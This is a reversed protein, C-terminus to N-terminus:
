YRLIAGESVDKPLQDVIAVAGSTELVHGIAADLDDPGHEARCRSRTVLLTDVRGEQAARLIESGGSLARDAGTADGFREADRDSAARLVPDVLERAREQLEAGSSADPNGALVDDILNGYALSEKFPSHYESVSALVLPRRENPGLLDDLGGAVQHLFKGLIVDDVEGGAGHGHYGGQGGPTPQHQLQPERQTKGDADKLSDPISGIDLERVTASTAEFLRVKNQSVALILFGGDGVAAPVIPRVAFRDSVHVAEPLDHAVRYARALGSSAYLALGDAMRQWPEPDEILAMMPALIEATEEDGAGHARLETEADKVLSKLRIPGDLTEAGGRATPMFVSVSRGTATGLAGLDEM